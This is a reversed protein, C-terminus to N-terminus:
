TEKLFIIARLMKCSGKRLKGSILKAKNVKRCKLNLKIKSKGKKRSIPVAIYSLSDQL